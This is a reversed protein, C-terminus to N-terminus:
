AVKRTFGSLGCRTRTTGGATTISIAVDAGVDGKIPPNFNAIQPAFQAAPVAFEFITRAGSTVTVTLEGAPTGGCSYNIGRVLHRFGAVAPRTATATTGDAKTARESWEHPATLMETADIM